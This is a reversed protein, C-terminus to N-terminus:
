RSAHVMFLKRTKFPNVEKDDQWTELSFGASKLLEEFKVYSGELRPHYELIINRVQDLAGRAEKLVAVESGEIDMKLLDIPRGIDQILRSLQIGPVEIPQTLQQGNWAGSFRGATSQWNATTADQHMTTTSGEESLAAEILVVDELVNEECNKRLLQFNKKIPEIAWIKSKPYNKKFYLTTLGIHAGADIIIPEAIDFDMYYTHQTFIENKILHFEESQDFWVTFPSIHTSQM